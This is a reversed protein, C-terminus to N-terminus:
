TAAAIRSSHWDLMRVSLRWLFPCPFAITASRSRRDGGPAYLHGLPEFHRRQAPTLASILFLRWPQRLSRAGEVSARDRVAGEEGLAQVLRDSQDRRVGIQLFESRRLSQM